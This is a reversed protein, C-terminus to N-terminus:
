FVRLVELIASLQKETLGGLRKLCEKYERQYKEEETEKAM